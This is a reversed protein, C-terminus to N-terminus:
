RRHQQIYSAVFEDRHQCNIDNDIDANLIDSDTTVIVSAGTTLYAQILYYDDEHKVKQSIYEPISELSSEELKVIKAPNFLFNDRYYIAIGRRIPDTHKWFYSAKLNFKKGEVTVIRDCVHFITKLFELAEEQNKPTNSGSLDAWLWEDIVIDAL